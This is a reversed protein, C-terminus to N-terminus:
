RARARVARLGAGTTASSRWRSSARSTAPLARRAGPRRLPLGGRAGARARGTPARDVDRGVVRPPRAERDAAPRPAGAAFAELEALVGAATPPGARARSRAGTSSRCGSAGPSGSSSPRTWASRRRPSAPARTPSAPRRSSRRSRATRASRATSPSSSSRRRTARRRHRGGRRRRAFPGDAGLAVPDDYDAPPRDGRRHDPPCAGGRRRRPRHLAPEVPTAAAPSPRPSRPARCSRSTTSPRRGASRAVAVPRRAGRGPRARRGTM